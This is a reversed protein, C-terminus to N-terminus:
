NNERMPQKKVFSMLLTDNIMFDLSADKGISWMNVKQLTSLFMNEGQGSCFMRTMAMPSNFNIKSSDVNLTGNFSNCSTNGSVRKNAVDFNMTPKKYPYLSDFAIGTGTIKQLEWSGALKSPDSMSATLKKPSNCGALVCAIVVIFFITRM